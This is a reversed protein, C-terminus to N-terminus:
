ASAGWQQGPHGGRKSRPSALQVAIPLQAAAAGSYRFPARAPCGNGGGGVAGLAPRAPCGGCCLMHLQPRATPRDTPRVTQRDTPLATKRGGGPHRGVPTAAVGHSAAVHHRCCSRGGCTDRGGCPCRGNCRKCGGWPNRGGWRNCGHVAVDVQWDACSCPCSPGPFESTSPAFLGYGSMDLLDCIDKSVEM